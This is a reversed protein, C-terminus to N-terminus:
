LLKSQSPQACTFFCSADLFLASNGISTNLPDVCQCHQCVTQGLRSIGSTRHQFRKQTLFRHLHVKSGVNSDALRRFALPADENLSSSTFPMLGNVSGIANSVRNCSPDSESSTRSIMRVTSNVDRKGHVLRIDRSQLTERQDQKERFRTGVNPQRLSRKVHSVTTVLVVAKTTREATQDVASSNRARYKNRQIRLFSEHRQCRQLQSWCTQVRTFM